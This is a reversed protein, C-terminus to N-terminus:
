LHLHCKPGVGEGRGYRCIRLYMQEALFFNQVAKQLSSFQLLQTVQSLNPSKEWKEKKEEQLLNNPWFSSLSHASMLIIECHEDM